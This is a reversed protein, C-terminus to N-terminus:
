NGDTGLNYTYLLFEKLKRMGSSGIKHGVPDSVFDVRSCYRNLYDKGEIAIALPIKEDSEGHAILFYPTFIKKVTPSPVVFSALLAIKDFLKEQQAIVSLLAGGQSFGLGIRISPILSETRQLDKIASILQLAPAQAKSWQTNTSETAPDFEWWSYGGLADPLPAEIFVLHYDKPYLSSFANLVFLTGAKGHIGVILPSDALLGRRFASKLGNHTLLIFGDPIKLM